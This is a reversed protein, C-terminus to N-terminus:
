KQPKKALVLLDKLITGDPHEYDQLQIEIIDFNSEELLKHLDERSYYHFYVQDDGGDSPGKWESETYNGAATSIYLIGGDRLRVNLDNLLKIAEEKSLYPMVFGCIIGHYLSTIGKLDRCDLVRCATGPNNKKALEIMAPAADTALIRFSPRLGLLHRTLNGPGCGLELIEAEEAFILECFRALHAAYRDVNMFREEYVLAIENFLEPASKKPPM